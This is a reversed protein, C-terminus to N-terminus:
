RCMKSLMRVVSLLARDSADLTTQDGIGLARCADALAACEMASGRAMAFFRKQDADKTKGVGEAINLPVSLSARRLQDRVEAYGPPVKVQVTESENRITKWEDGALAPSAAAALALVLAPISAHM